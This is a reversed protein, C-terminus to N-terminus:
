HGKDKVVTLWGTFTEVNSVNITSLNSTGAEEPTFIYKSNDFDIDEYAVDDSTELNVAQGFRLKIDGHGTCGLFEVTYDQDIQLTEQAAAIVCSIIQASVSLPRVIAFASVFLLTASARIM